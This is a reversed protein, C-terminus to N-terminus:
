SGAASSASTVSPASTAVPLTPPATFVAPKLTPKSLMAPMPRHVSKFNGLQAFLPSPHTEPNDRYLVGSLGAEQLPRYFNGNIQTHTIVYNVFKQHLAPEPRDLYAHKWFDDLSRQSTLGAMDYIALGLTKVAIGHDMASLGVTSNITVLGQAYTMLTPLHQDHIYRLRDNLGHHKRLLKILGSYDAYARDMPHHKVLLVADAPAHTAFSAISERIYQEISAYPSHERVQADIAVQLVSLFYNKNGGHGQLDKLADREAFRYWWKRGLGRVWRLGDLLVLPRHHKYHPFHWHMLKAAIFYAMAHLAAIGFSSKIPLQDPLQVPKWADYDARQTPLRSHGNVGHPEFTIFNPRVYGEEFTWFQAGHAHAVTRATQHIPRCDGFVMVCDIQHDVLFRDIYAPWDSMKGHYALADAPSYLADGANFDIKMVKGAGAAQLAAAVRKFFPGHPGQRLLVRMGAFRLWGMQDTSLM